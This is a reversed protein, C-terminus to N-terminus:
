ASRWRLSDVSRLTLFVGLVIFSAYFVLSKTDIIGKPFNEFQRLISLYELVQSGRSGADIVWLILFAGFTLFAAVVQSETLSSIFHGVAILTAGLLLVGLYGSAAVALPPRPDSYRYLAVIYLLTPALMIIFLTLTALFKGWVIQSDTLPSTMLLEMTGRKKEEAYSGMTLMPIFFLIMTSVVGFFSQMVQGPVDFEQPPMGFQSARMMLMFSQQIFFDLIRSFFFGALILFIGIVAYAIPSVFYLGVEKRYIAWINKM